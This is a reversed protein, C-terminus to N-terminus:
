WNDRPSPKSPRSRPTMAGRSRALEGVAHPNAASWPLALEGEALEDAHPLYQFSPLLPLAEVAGPATLQPLPLVGHVTAEGDSAALDVWALACHTTGLDVGLAFHPAGTTASSRKAASM